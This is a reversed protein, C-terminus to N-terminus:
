HWNYFHDELEVDVKTGGRSVGKVISNIKIHDGTIPSIRITRYFNTRDGSQYSFLGSAPSFKLPEGSGASCDVSVTLNDSLYDLEFCGPNNFGQNWISGSVVNRDLLNKVLEIGEMALYNATIQDSILRSQGVSNSLLTYFGFLGLTLISMAVLLEIIM